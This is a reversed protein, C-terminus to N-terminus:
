GKGEVLDVAREGLWEVLDCKSQMERTLKATAFFMTDILQSNM